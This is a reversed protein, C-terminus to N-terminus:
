LEFEKSENNFDMKIQQIQLPYQVLIGGNPHPSILFGELRLLTETEPYMPFHLQTEYKGHAADEYIKMKASRYNALVTHKSKAAMAAMQQANM